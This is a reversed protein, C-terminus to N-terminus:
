ANRSLARRLADVVAYVADRSMSHALPLTLLRATIGDTVPLVTTHRAYASFRHTPPYHVSSQIGDARLSAM